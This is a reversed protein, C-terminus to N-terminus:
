SIDHLLGKAEKLDPTGFGETFRNYVEALLQRADNHKGQQQGLRYLSTAARLELLISQQRRAVNLAQHFNDEVQKADPMSQQLLLAGKLRYLEAEWWREEISQAEVFAESLVRLGEEAQGSKRYAEALLSLYFPLSRKAETDRLIRLGRKIEAIGEECDGQDALAWGRIIMAWGLYYAFNHEKCVTIAAEARQYATEAERRFQHVIAAYDLALAM